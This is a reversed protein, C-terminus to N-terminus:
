DVLEIAILNRREIVREILDPERDTLRALQALLFGLVACANVARRFGLPDVKTTRAGLYAAM